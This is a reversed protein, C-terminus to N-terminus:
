HVFVEPRCKTCLFTGDTLTWATHFGHVACLRESTGNPKQSLPPELGVQARPPHHNPPEGGKLPSGGSGCVREVTQPETTGDTTRLNPFWGFPYYHLSRNAGESTQWFSEVGEKLLRGVRAKMMGSQKVIANQTIGPQAAIIALLKECDATRKTFAPSDAVEFTGAEFNPRITLTTLDLGLRNKNCSLSILGSEESMEHLLCVDAHDRIVSSGRSQSGESKGPHHMAVVACGAAACFKLQQMVAAMETSDNEEATHAYRLPDVIVMPREEKAFTLLLESGIMPPQQVHWTGWVHLNEIVTDALMELRDKIAWAPNEYDLYLVPARQCRRGLFESGTSVAVALAL